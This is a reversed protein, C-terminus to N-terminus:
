TVRHGCMLDLDLGDHRLPMAHGLCMVSAWLKVKFSCVRMLYSLLGVWLCSFRCAALQGIAEFAFLPVFNNLHTSM